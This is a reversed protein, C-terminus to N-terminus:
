YEVCVRQVEERTTIGANVKRMGADLLRPVDRSSMESEISEVSFATRSLSARLSPDFSLMEYIAERGRFGHHCERCGSVCSHRKRVLRQAIVLSLSAALDHHPVGLNVLRQIAQASDNTHLTSLVLHGTQAAKVAIDASEADRIEGLMLVDPDQRLFSRMATAFTLGRKANMAVQNVGDIALEIPDEVSSVNRHVQNLYQLAAYLTVTKGSGTPGTVLILGHPQDLHKRFLALQSDLFGLQDLSLEVSLRDQLRLIIKQGFLTPLTSVRFDVISAGIKWALRGDQPIRKEAIDLQSAVKIQSTVVGTDEISLEQHVMLFGDIRFRVRLVSAFPEIHIDSAGRELATWLTLELWDSPLM